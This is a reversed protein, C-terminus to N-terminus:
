RNPFPSTKSQVWVGDARKQWNGNEDKKYVDGSDTAYLNTPPIWNGKVDEQDPELVEFPNNRRVQQTSVVGQGRNNYINYPDFPKQEYGRKYEFNGNLHAYGYHGFGYGYGYPAYFGPYGVGYGVGVSISVNSKSYTRNVGFAFTVPRSYYKSKYWPKYQYGTGYFICGQYLFSGTYGGTYGTYVYDKSAEYIYVYKINYVPSNPPLDQIEEPVSTAVTWNEIPSNSTFWVGEDVAHYQENIKVVSLNTNVAYAMNTGEIAVFEPEGDYEIDMRVNIREIIATQPIGNDLAASMAEPTGPISIRFKGWVSNIPIKRFYVPIDKPQVFQWDGRVLTKSKYWRGSFIVYYERALNDFLLDNPSNSIEYLDTNPIMKMEPDGSTQILQAPFITVILKPKSSNVNSLNNSNLPNVQNNRRELAMITQPPQDIYQWEYYFDEARFWFSGAKLYLFGDSNSKVIFYPTNVVYQYLESNDVNEFIPEGDVYVLETYSKEYYINPPTNILGTSQDAEISAKQLSAMFQDLSTNFQWTPAVASILERLNQKKANTVDPFNADEMEVQDFFVHNATKDIHVQAKLWVAGFTPLATGDYYNFASRVEITNGAFSELQPAYITISAQELPIIKPWFRKSNGDQGWVQGAQISIVLLVICRVVKMM